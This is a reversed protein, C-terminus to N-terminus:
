FSFMFIVLLYEILRITMYMNAIAKEIDRWACDSSLRKKSYM